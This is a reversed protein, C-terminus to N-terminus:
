NAVAIPSVANREAFKLFNKRSFHSDRGDLKLAMRHDGYVTTSILDYAPSLSRPDCDSAWMLSLNKAHLDGNGVLYSFVYIELAKLIEVKWAPSVKRICGVM